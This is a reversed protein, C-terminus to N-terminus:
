HHHHHHRGHHHGHDTDNLDHTLKVSHSTSATPVFTVFQQLKTAVDALMTTEQAATIKGDAVKSDLATKVTATLADVLGASSKGSTADAIQALSKGSALQTKLADKTLGLYGAAADFLGSGHDHVTAAASANAHGGDCAAATGAGIPVLAAVVVAGVAFRRKLGLKMAGGKADFEYKKCSM